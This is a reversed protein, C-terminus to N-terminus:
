YFTCIIMLKWGNEACKKKLVFTPAKFMCDISHVIVNVINTFYKSANDKRESFDKNLVKEIVIELSPIV